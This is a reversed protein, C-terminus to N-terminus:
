LRRFPSVAEDSTYNNPGVIKLIPKAISLFNSGRITILRGGSPFLELPYINTVNPNDTITFNVIKKAPVQFIKIFVKLLKKPNGGFPLTRCTLLDSQFRQSTLKCDLEKSESGFYVSTANPLFINHGQLTILTGGALPM